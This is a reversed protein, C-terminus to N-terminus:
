KRKFALTLKVDFYFYAIGLVLGLLNGAVIDEIFNYHDAFRSASIAFAGFCVWGSLWLCLFRLFSSGDTDSYRQELAPLVIYMIYQVVVCAMYVALIGQVSPFSSSADM